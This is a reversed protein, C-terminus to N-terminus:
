IHKLKDIYYSTSEYERDLFEDYANLEEFTTLGPFNEQFWKARRVALEKTQEVVWESYKKVDTVHPIKTEDYYPCQKDADKTLEIEVEEWERLLEEMRRRKKKNYPCQPKASLKAMIDKLEDESESWGIAQGHDDGPVYSYLIYINTDM